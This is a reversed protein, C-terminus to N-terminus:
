PIAAASFAIWLLFSRIVQLSWATDYFDPNEANKNQIVNQGIGIDSILEIGTKLSNVILMTGFIDPALLRALVVNTALRLATSVGYAGLTWITGRLLFSTSVPM